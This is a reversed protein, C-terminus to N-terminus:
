RNKGLLEVFESESIVTVNLKYAQNLKSGPDTGVLVYDTKKSVSSTVRGGRSLIADSAQERTFQSLTGTLVFRKGTLTQPLVDSHDTRGIIEAQKLKDLLILNPQDQFFEVVSEAITPGIEPIMELQDKTAFVLENLDSFHGALIRAVGNGVYRIGLAFLLRAFSKGRSKQLGQLLNEASTEAQRPLAEIQVTTLNYLDGADKILGEDVLLDVTKAGLGDIDM